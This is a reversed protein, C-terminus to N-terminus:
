SEAKVARVIKGAVENCNKEVEHEWFRLVTWGQEQLLKNVEFDRKRNKEFKADWFKTNSKPRM